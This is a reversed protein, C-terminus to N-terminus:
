QKGVINYVFNRVSSCYKEMSFQEIGYEYAQRSIQNYSSESSLLNKIAEVFEDQSRFLFGNYGNKILESTGGGDYGIVPIGRQMAEVTVRGFGESHSCMLLVDMDKYIIDTDQEFGHFVVREKLALTNVLSYLYRKYKGPKDGWIHLKSYPFFVLMNKFYRIALDQGKEKDLIGVIGLNMRQSISKNALKEFHSEVGNYIVVQKKSLPMNLNVHNAVAHSVYIIGDSLNILKRKLRNGLVFYAEHDVDMFERIHSIHKKNLIKSLFIGINEASTNSYIIDPNYKKVVYLIYPFVLLTYLILVPLIIYKVNKKYYFIQSFYPIVIKSIGKDELLTTLNGKSPLLLCVEDGNQKFYEVVSLLSRNAGYLQSYNSVFLIRM